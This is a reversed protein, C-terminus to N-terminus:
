DRESEGAIENAREYIKAFASMADAAEAKIRRAEAKSITGDILARYGSEFVETSQAAAFAVLAALADQTHEFRVRVLACGQEAALWRTVVPEGAIRELDLVVDAPAHTAKNDDGEDGYKFLQQASVRTHTAAGHLGKPGGAAAILAVVAEKLSGRARIKYPSKAM